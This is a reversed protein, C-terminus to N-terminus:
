EATAEHPAMRRAGKDFVTRIRDPTLAALPADDIVM